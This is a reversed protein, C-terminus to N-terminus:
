WRYGVTLLVSIRSDASRKYWVGHSMYNLTLADSLSSLDETGSTGVSLIDQLKDTVDDTKKLIVANYYGTLTAFIRNNFHYTFGVNGQIGMDYYSQFSVDPENDADKGKIYENSNNASMTMEWFGGAGINLSFKPALYIAGYLSIFESLGNTNVTAIANLDTSFLDVTFGERQWTLVESLGISFRQSLEKEFGLSLGINYNFNKYAFNQSVVPSSSLDWFNFNVFDVDGKPINAGATIGLRFDGLWSWLGAKADCIGMTALVVLIIIYKKM